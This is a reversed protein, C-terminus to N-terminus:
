WKTEHQSAPPYEMTYLDAGYPIDLKKKNSLVYEKGDIKFVSGVKFDTLISNGGIFRNYDADYRSKPVAVGCNGNSYFYSQKNKDVQVSFFGESIGAENLIQKQEEHSYHMSLYTGNQGLMNWFLGRDYAKEDIFGRCTNSNLQGLNGYACAMAHTKGESDTFKYYNGSKIVVENNVAKIESCRSEDVQPIKSMPFCVGGISVTDKTERTKEWEFNLVDFMADTMKTSQGSKVGYIGYNFTNACPIYCNKKSATKKTNLLIHLANQKTQQAFLSRYLYTGNINM